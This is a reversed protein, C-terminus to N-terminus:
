HRNLAEIGPLKKGELFELSAGGGTSVHSFRGALGLKRVAAVTDGGGVITIAKLRSIVRAIERTGRAFKAIEFVGMPGNWVVTKAGRLENAFLEVTKPGIDLGLMAKPIADCSVVKSKAKSDAREAAIVDVPLVIRKGYRNLLQKAVSVKDQEISSQGVSKGLSKLFTFMMAGGVLMKDAKKALNEIVGIKDSVKAGGFVLVFPKKPNLARSLMSIEKELLLGAACPLYKPVGVISAHSRHSSGFADNVYFDAPEALARAFADDNAEEERHFRVNELVAVDGSHMENVADDVEAGVCDDLKLVHRGLLMELREAVPDMRLSEDVGDPRGLHSLLLVIAKKGILRKITPLSERIRTDDAIEGDKLPVNLDARVLVKKGARVPLDKLTPIM